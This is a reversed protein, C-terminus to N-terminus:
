PEFEAMKEHIARALMSLSTDESKALTAEITLLRALRTATQSLSNMTDIWDELSTDQDTAQQAVTRMVVRLMVIEDQLKIRRMRDLTAPDLRGLAEFYINNQISDGEL